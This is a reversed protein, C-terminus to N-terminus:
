YKQIIMDDSISGLARHVVTTTPDGFEYQQTTVPNQESTQANFNYVPYMPNYLQSGISHEGVENLQVASGM